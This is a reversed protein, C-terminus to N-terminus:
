RASQLMVPSFASVAVPTTQVTSKFREATVVVEGITTAEAAATDAADAALAAVPVSAAGIAAVLASTTM